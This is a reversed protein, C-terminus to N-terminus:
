RRRKKLNAQNIKIWKRAIEEIHKLDDSEIEGSERLKQILEMVLDPDDKAQEIAEAVSKRQYLTGLIRVRRTNSHLFPISRVQMTIWRLSGTALFCRVSLLSRNRIAVCPPLVVSCHM